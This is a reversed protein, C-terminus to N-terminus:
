KSRANRFLGPPMGETRKFFKSFSFANAYGVAMAIEEISMDTFALLNKAHDAKKRNLYDSCNMLFEKQLLRNIQKTSLHICNAVDNVTINESLHDDIYRTIEQVRSDIVQKETKFEENRVQLQRAYALALRFILTKVAEEYLLDQRDIEEMIQRFLAYIEDTQSITMVQDPFCRCFESEEAENVKKLAFGFAIKCVNESSFICRHLRDPPIMLAEGEHLEISRDDDFRYVASGRLLLHTEFFLHKHIELRRGHSHKLNTNASIDEADNHFVLWIVEIECHDLLYVLHMNSLRRNIISRHPHNYVEEYM